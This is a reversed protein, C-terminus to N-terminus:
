VLEGDQIVIIKRSREAKYEDLIKKIAECLNIRHARTIANDPLAGFAVAAKVSQYVGFLKEAELYKDEGSFIM